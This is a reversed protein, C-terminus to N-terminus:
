TRRGLYQKIRLMLADIFGPHTYSLDPRAVQAFCEVSNERVVPTWTGGLPRGLWQTGYFNSMPWPSGIPSSHELGNIELLREIKTTVSGKAGSKSSLTDVVTTKGGSVGTDPM